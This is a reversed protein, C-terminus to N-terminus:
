RSGNSATPATRASSSRRVHRDIGAKGGARQGAGGDDDGPGQQRGVHRDRSLSRGLALPRGRREPRADVQDGDVDDDAVLVPADHAAQRAVVERDGLVPPRLGDRREVELLDRPLRDVHRGGRHRGHEAADAAGAGGGGTSGISM